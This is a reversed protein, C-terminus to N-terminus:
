GRRAARLDRCTKEREEHVIRLPVDRLRIAPSRALELLRAHLGLEDDLHAVVLHLARPEPVARLEDAPAVVLIRAVARPALQPRRARSSRDLREKGLQSSM